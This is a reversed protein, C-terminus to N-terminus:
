SAVKVVLLLWLNLEFVAIQLLCHRFNQCLIKANKQVIEDKFIFHTYDGVDHFSLLIVRCADIVAIVLHFILHPQVALYYILNFKKLM